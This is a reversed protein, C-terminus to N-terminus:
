SIVRWEVTYRAHRKPDLQRVLQFERCLLPSTQWDGESAAHFQDDGRTLIRFYPTDGRVDVLWYEDVGAQFYLDRLTVFDKRRSSDSVIELALDPSGRLEIFGHEKGAIAQVRSSELSQWSLVMGDPETSLQATANTLLMRDAIFEGVPNERLASMIAFAFESKVLNHTILEEMTLDVWIEGDLYAVGGREPYNGSHTWLAFSEFDCVSSPIRVRDGVTIDGNCGTLSPGRIPITLSPANM